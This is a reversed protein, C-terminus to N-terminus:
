KIYLARSCNENVLQSADFFRVFSHLSRSLKEICGLWHIFITQACKGYFLTRIEYM